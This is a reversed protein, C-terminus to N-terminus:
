ATRKRRWSDIALAVIMIAGSVVPQLTADVKVIVLGTSVIQLFLVGLLAGAVTGVGGFLSVGGVVVAAIVSLEWGTGIQPDGAKVQAMLLIGALASLTSTLVFAALKVRATSIGSLRAALANGGTAYVRRGYGSRRLVIDGVVTAVLLIWVSIPLGLLSSALSHVGDPIPYIQRGNSLVYGGGKAVLLMGLTVVFAPLGVRVTLLGNIMGIAAGALLAAVLALAVSWGAQTMLWAAFVASFGAVSGVSLDFEGSVLLIAQGVAIIGIFAITRLISELNAHSLFASNILSFILVALASATVLGLEPTRLLRGLWEEAPRGPGDLNERTATPTAHSM